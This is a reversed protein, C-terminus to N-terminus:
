WSSRSCPSCSSSSRWIAIVAIYGATSNLEEKVMQGVSRGDRRMSAFLIIFDQVAGGLLVGILIWLTSPLYGFQAALV